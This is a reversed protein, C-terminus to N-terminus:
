KLLTATVKGESDKIAKIQVRRPPKTAGRKWLHQNLDNAIKINDSKTHRKLYKQIFAIAKNTKKYDPKSHHAAKLPITYVDESVIDVKKEDKKKDGKKKDKEEKKEEAKEEKKEEKVEEKKPEVKEDKKEEAKAEVPKEEQKEEKKEEKVKEKEAMNTFTIREGAEAARQHDELRGTRRQSHGYLLEALRM